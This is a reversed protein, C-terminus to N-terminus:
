CTTSNLNRVEESLSSAIEDKSVTIESGQAQTHTHSCNELRTPTILVTMLRSTHYYQTVSVDITM